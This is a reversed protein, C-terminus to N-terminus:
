SKRCSTRVQKTKMGEKKKEDNKETAETDIMAGTAADIHVGTAKGRKKELEAEIVIGRFKRQRPRSRKILLSKAGKALVAIDSEEDKKKDSWASTGLALATGVTLALIM